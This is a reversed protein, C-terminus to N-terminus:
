EVLKRTAVQQSLLTFDDIVITETYQGQRSRFMLGINDVSSIVKSFASVEDGTSPNIKNHQGTLMIGETLYFTVTQPERSLPVPVAAEYTTSGDSIVLAVDTYTIPDPMNGDTEAHVIDTSKITCSAAIYSSLDTPEPFAFRISGFRNPWYVCYQASLAGNIVRGQVGTVILDDNTADGFRRWPTSSASIGIMQGDRYSEFDDLVTDAGATASLPLILCVSFLSTAIPHPPTKM